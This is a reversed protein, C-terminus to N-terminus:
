SLIATFPLFYVHIYFSLYLCGKKGSWKLLGETMLMVRRLTLMNADWRSVELIPNLRPQPWLSPPFFWSIHKFAFISQRTILTYMPIVTLVVVFNIRGALSTRRCAQYFTTTHLIRTIFPTRRSLFFAPCPLKCGPLLKALCSTQLRRRYKNVLYTHTHKNIYAYIYVGAHM